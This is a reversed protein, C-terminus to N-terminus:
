KGKLQSMFDKKTSFARTGSAEDGLYNLRFANVIDIVQKGGDELGEDAEEASPNAGTDAGSITTLYDCLAGLSSPQITPTSSGFNDAGLTIKKCDVEYVTDDVEKIGYSDSIVEDGTVIDQLDRDDAVSLERATLGQVREGAQAPHQNRLLRVKYIIM